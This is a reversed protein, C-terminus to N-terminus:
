ERLRLNILYINCFLNSNNLKCIAEVMFCPTENFLLITPLLYLLYLKKNRNKISLPMEKWSSVIAHLSVYKYWQLHHKRLAEDVYM